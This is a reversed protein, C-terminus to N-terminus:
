RRAARVIRSFEALDMAREAPADATRPSVVGGTVIPDAATAREPRRERSPDGPIPDLVVSSFRFRGDEIGALARGDYTYVASNVVRFVGGEDGTIPDYTTRALDTFVVYTQGLVFEPTHSVRVTENGITGGLTTLTVANQPPAGALTNVIEFRNRTVVLGRADTEADAATVRGVFILPSSRVLWDLTYAERAIPTGTHEAGQAPDSVQATTGREVCAALSSALLILGFGLFNM